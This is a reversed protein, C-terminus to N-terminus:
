VPRYEGMDPLYGVISRCQSHQRCSGCWRGELRCLSRQGRSGCRHGEAYVYIRSICYSRSVPIVARPVPTTRLMCQYNCGNSLAWVSHDSSALATVIQKEDELM